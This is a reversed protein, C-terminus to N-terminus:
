DGTAPHLTLTHTAAGPLFPLRQGRVWAEHGAAYFPSLPHGSQGGPMHFYGQAEHGPSVAFRESAGFGTTHVHPMDHDGGMPVRPMDLWRSLAPVARSLPHRIVAANVEGWRCTAGPGACATASATISEDVVDLLFARWDAFRPDLLHPPKATALEWVAEEFQRPARLKIAANDGRAPLTLTDFVRRALTEHFARVQLYGAADISASPTWQQVQERMATRSANGSTAAEDLTALLVDRWRALFLAREDLQIALMDPETASGAELAFLRDRIQQARAGRDPSGDGIAALKEAGVVRNNASWIRGSPPNLVRPYDAAARWGQWGTDPISWDAPLGADYAAGRLPMRGLLTWGINGAADGCVFNQVPGGIGNAVQMAAECSDVTELELWRLNTAQPYHATWAIAYTATDGTGVTGAAAPPLVPGWQTTEFSVERSAGSSSHVVESIRQFPKWGSATRYNKGDASREIRVLDSWDGYSNTFGWAIRGTSGAVMIPAGALTLAVLDRSAATKDGVRLRVRYWTNPLGLGLHMDNAVLAAGSRTHSGAVAWNNSGIARPEFATGTHRLAALQDPQAALRRLDLDEAGPMSAAAMVVGDIPAEWAPAVSYVYRFVAAPLTAALFGRQRDAAAESDNLQLYMSFVVLLSDRAQWPQPKQRLLLYEFPRVRLSALGQNVGRAYAELLAEQAPTLEALVAAAVTSFRHLRNRADNDLAKDGFLEALRGASMRRALDMQFYRDQAHVFGTAFAADDRTAATITVVGLADREISVPSGPGAVVRQGDLPPLSGRVAFYLGGCVLLALVLLGLLLRKLLRMPSAYVWIGATRVLGPV